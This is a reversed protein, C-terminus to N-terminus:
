RNTSKRGCSIGSSPAISKFVHRSNVKHAEMFAAVDRRGHVMKGFWDLAVNEDLHSHLNSALGDVLSFYCNAFSIAQTFEDM